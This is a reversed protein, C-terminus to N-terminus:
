KNPRSRGPIKYDYGPADWWPKSLKAGRANELLHDSWMATRIKNGKLYDYIKKVDQAFLERPDKNRCRPCVGWPMRWEDHGIHVMRPKIVQIYEEYVDFVLNYVGPLSPCYTDPWEEQPIEAFERHRTLLYYSHTLSPLEPIVEIHNSEAWQVLDSVEQKELIGGDATDYHSSNNGHFWLGLPKNLRRLLLDRALDLSGANLEPHRDLRMTANMEVILKNYKYLAMYDRVFRKFFALNDRGPLYLKVGRFKTYPWDRIRVGPIGIGSASSDILQRLSQLGYFAGSEDSGAIVVAQPTVILVYGEPGPESASVALAHATCYEKVLPNVITGVLLFRHGTPLHQSSDEKLIFGHRSSLESSLLHALRYDSESPKPPLLISANENMVFSKGAIQMKRPEPFVGVAGSAPLVWCFLAVILLLPGKAKM